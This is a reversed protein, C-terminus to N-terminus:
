EELLGNARLTEVTSRIDARLVEGDVEYKDFLADYIGAEDMGKSICNWIDAATANLKIMGRFNRSAEGIAVVVYNGMVERLVFGEKIKLILDEL